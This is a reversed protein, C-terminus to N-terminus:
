NRGGCALAGDGARVCQRGLWGQPQQGSVHVVEGFGRPRMCARPMTVLNLIAGRVEIKLYRPGLKPYHPPVLSAFAYNCRANSVDDTSM